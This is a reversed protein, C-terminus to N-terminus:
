CLFNVSRIFIFTATICWVVAPRDYFSIDIDRRERKKQTFCIIFVFSTHTVFKWSIYYIKSGFDNVYEFTYLKQFIYPRYQMQLWVVCFGMYIDRSLTFVVTFLRKENPNKEKKNKNNCLTTLLHRRFM